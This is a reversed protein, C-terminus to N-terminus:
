EDFGVPLLGPRRLHVVAQPKEIEENGKLHQHPPARLEVQDLRKEFVPADLSLAADDPLRRVKHRVLLDRLVADDRVGGKDQLVHLCLPPAQKKNLHVHGGLTDDGLDAVVPAEGQMELELLVVPIQLAAAKDPGIIRIPGKAVEGEQEHGKALLADAVDAPRKGVERRLEVREVPKGGKLCRLDVKEAWDPAAARWLILPPIHKSSLLISGHPLLAIRRRRRRLTWSYLSSRQRVSNTKHARKSSVSSSCLSTRLYSM